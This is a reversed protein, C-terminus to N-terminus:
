RRYLIIFEGPEGGFLKEGDANYGRETQRITAADLRAEAEIAINEQRRESFIACTAPDVYGRWADGDQTWRQDCGAEFFPTMDDPTLASLLAPDDWADVFREPEKLGYTKQIVAGDTEELAIVRQRYVTWDAGTNLQYYLWVGALAPADIRVRRDRITNDPDDPATQFTGSMMAGLVGAPDEPPTAIRHAIMVGNEFVPADPPSVGDQFDFVGDENMDYHLMAVFMEGERPAADLMVVAPEHIGRELFVYGAVDTPSPAGDRFPHFVLWGDRDIEVKAFAFRAGARAIDQTIIRNNEGNGTQVAPPAEGAAADANNTECASVTLAMLLAALTLRM